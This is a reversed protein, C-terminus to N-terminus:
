AGTTEDEDETVFSVGEPLTITMASFPKTLAGSLREELLYEYQNFNIDFDEMSARKSKPNQGVAYDNLNVIVGVLERGSIKYGSMPEVTVIKKVRLATALKEMTDYIKHGIKDELLLMESLADETTFFTPNGTGKYRKRKKIITNITLKALDNMSMDATANVKVKVNFLDSDTVIPRIKDEYIKHKDTSLRGDGILIARAKEEDLMMGMERKIFPIVEFETIQIVDDRDLKQLKYITQADTSRNLVSFVEPWKQQGKVYGKARADDETIDAFVSKIKLYPLTHVGSLVDSVWGMDRSIIEPTPNMNYAEPYLSEIGRIGYAKSAETGVTGPTTMGDVPIAHIIFDEGYTEKIAAKLTGLEKARSILAMGESHTLFHNGEVNKANDTQDFINHAMEKKDGEKKKNESESIAQGVIIAIATKQKDTLTDFVEGITEDDEDDNKKDGSPKGKEYKSDDAHEIKTENNDFTLGEGSYIVAETDDDDMPFGHMVVSEVFAGPNAGALVLSVERIVGHVVDNGEKELDNALISLSVIDGHKVIKKANEGAYTDNFTCYAYVGESRNKLLAHGLIGDVSEHRHNWVLPVVDGDNIKFANKRITIGDACKLNNKTAWGAFDYAM